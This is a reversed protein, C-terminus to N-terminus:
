ARINLKHLSLRSFFCCFVGVAWLAPAPLLLVRSTPSALAEDRRSQFTERAFPIKLFMQDPKLRLLFVSRILFAVASRICCTPPNEASLTSKPFLSFEFTKDCPQARWFCCFFFVEYHCFMFDLGFILYKFQTLEIDSPECLIQHTCCMEFARLCSNTPEKTIEGKREADSPLPRPLSTVLLVTRGM